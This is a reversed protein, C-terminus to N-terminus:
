PNHETLRRCRPQIDGGGCHPSVPMSAEMYLTKAGWGVVMMSTMTSTHINWGLSLDKLESDVSKGRMKHRKRLAYM